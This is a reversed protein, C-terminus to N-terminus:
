VWPVPQVARELRNFYPGDYNMVRLLVLELYWLGLDHAQQREDRPIAIISLQSSRTPPHVIRNRLKIFLDPGDVANWAVAVAHLAGLAPPIATPIGTHQLLLRLADAASTANFAPGALVVHAQVLYAWALLELATAALILAGEIGGANLNAEVYWHLASVLPEGWVADDFRDMFTGFATNLAATDLVARHPFWSPRYRWASLHPAGWQQQIPVDNAFGVPLAPRCWQGRLFSLFYGIQVLAQEADAWAFPQGDRRELHGVHTIAYGGADGLFGLLANGRQTRDLTWRWMASELALRGHWFATAQADRVTAGHYDVFNPVHFVVTDCDGDQGVHAARQIACVCSM